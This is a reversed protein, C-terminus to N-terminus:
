LFVLCIRLNNESCYKTKGDLLVFSRLKIDRYILQLYINAKFEINVLKLVFLIKM